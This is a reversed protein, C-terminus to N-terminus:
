MMGVAIEKERIGDANEKSVVRVLPGGNKRFATGIRAKNVAHYAEEGLKEGYIDLLISRAAAANNRIYTKDQTYIVIM